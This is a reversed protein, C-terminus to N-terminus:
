LNSPPLSNWSPKTSWRRAFLGRGDRVARGNRPTAPTRSELQSPRTPPSSPLHPSPTPTVLRPFPPLSLTRAVSSHRRAVQASRWDVMRRRSRGALRRAQDHSGARANRIELHANSGRTTGPLVGVGCRTSRASSRRTPTGRSGDGDVLRYLAHVRPVPRRSRLVCRRRPDLLRQPSHSRPLRTLSPTSKSLAFASFTRLVASCVLKLKDLLLENAAGM